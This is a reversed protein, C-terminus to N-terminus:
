NVAGQMGGDTRMPRTTDMGGQLALETRQGARACIMHASAEDNVTYTQIIEASGLMAQAKFKGFIHEAQAYSQFICQLKLGYGPGLSMATEVQDLAREGLSTALEDMIFWVPAPPLTLLAQFASAFLLRTFRYYRKAQSEPLSIYITIKKEKLDSWEFD